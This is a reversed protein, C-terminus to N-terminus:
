LGGGPNFRFDEAVVQVVNIGREAIKSVVRALVGVARPETGIEVVGYGLYRGVHKLHLMAELRKFVERLEPTKLIM